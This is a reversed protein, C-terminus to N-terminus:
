EPREFLKRIKAMQAEGAARMREELALRKATAADVAAPKPAAPQTNAIATAAPASRSFMLRIPVLDAPRAVIGENDTVCTILPREYPGDVMSCLEWQYLVRHESARFVPKRLRWRLKDPLRIGTVPQLEGASARQDTVCWELANDLRWDNAATAAESAISKIEDEFVPLLLADRCALIVRFYDHQASALRFLAAKRLDVSVSGEKPFTRLNLTELDYERADKELRVALKLDKPEGLSFQKRLADGYGALVFLVKRGPAPLLLADGVESLSAPKLLSSTPVPAPTM